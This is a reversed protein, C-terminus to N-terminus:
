FLHLSKRRYNEKTSAIIPMKRLGLRMNGCFFSMVKCCPQMQERKCGSSEHSSFKKSDFFSKEKLTFKRRPFRSLGVNNVDLASCKRIVKRPPLVLSARAIQPKGTKRRNLSHFYQSDHKAGDDFM